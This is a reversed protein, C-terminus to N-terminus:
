TLRRISEIFEKTPIGTPNRVLFGKWIKQIYMAAKREMEGKYKRRTVNKACEFPPINKIYQCKWCPCTFDTFVDKGCPTEPYLRIQSYALEEQQTSWLDVAHWSSM